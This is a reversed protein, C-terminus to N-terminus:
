AKTEPYWNQVTGLSCGIQRGIERRSMSPHKLALAMIKEGFVSSTGQNKNKSTRIIAEVGEALAFAGESWQVTFPAQPPYNRMLTEVVSLEAGENGTDRHETLYFAADFDRALVGSGAGRDRAEKDGATGKANHHVYLVAAGTEEALRDFMALTPKMDAALNEDGETLKYLPDILIVDPKHQRAQNMITTANVTQGRLSAVTLREGIEAATIGLARAMNHVRRWYHEEKIELQLMLVRRLKPIPWHLFKDRGAALILAFQLAFFTKRAKSSGIIPVKDGRDFLGEVIADVPPPEDTIWRAANVPAHNGEDGRALERLFETRSAMINEVPTEGHADEITTLADRILARRKEKEAVIDNYFQAHAPTPTKDVLRELFQPGGVKDMEGRAKLHEGLTVLDITKADMSAFAEFVVQHAPVYFSAANLGAAHCLTLVRAPDLIISGLVGREAEESYPPVRDLVAPATM